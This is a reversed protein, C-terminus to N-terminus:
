IERLIEKLFSLNLPKPLFKYINLKEIQNVRDDTKDLGSIVIVKIDKNFERIISLTEIGDLGPKPLRIDLLIIDFNESKVMEIAEEGTPVCIVDYGELKLSTAIIETLVIEDDVILIRKM